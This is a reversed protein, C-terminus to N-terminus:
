AQTDFAEAVDPYFALCCFILIDLMVVAYVLHRATPDIVTTDGLISDFVFRRMWLFATLGTTTLLLNRAWKQLRWLATGVVLFYIGLAPLIVLSLLGSPLPKQAVLYTLAKLELRSDLHWDPFALISAVICIVLAARFFQFLAILTVPFPRVKEEAKM